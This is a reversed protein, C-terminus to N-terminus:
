MKFELQIAQTKADLGLLAQNNAYYFHQQM